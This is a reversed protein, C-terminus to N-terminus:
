DKISGNKMAPNSYLRNQAPRHTKTNFTNNRFKNQNLQFYDGTDNFVDSSRPLDNIIIM